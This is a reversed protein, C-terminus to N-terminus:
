GLWYWLRSLGARRRTKHDPHRARYDPAFFPQEMRSATLFSDAFIPFM